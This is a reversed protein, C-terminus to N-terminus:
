DMVGMVGTKGMRSVRDRYIQTDTTDQMMSTTTAGARGFCLGLRQTIAM